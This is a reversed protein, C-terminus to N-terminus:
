RGVISRAYKDIQEGNTNLKKFFVTSEGCEPCVFEFRIKSTLTVKDSNGFNAEREIEEYEYGGGKFNSGCYKCHHLIYTGYLNMWVCGGVLMVVGLMVIGYEAVAETSLIGEFLKPDNAGWIGLIIVFPGAIGIIKGLLNPLWGILRFLVVKVKLGEGLSDQINNGINAIIFFVICFALLVCTLTMNFTGALVGLLVVLINASVILFTGINGVLSFVLGLVKNM